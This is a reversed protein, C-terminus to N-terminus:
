LDCLTLTRAEWDKDLSYLAAVGTNVARAVRGRADKILVRLDTLLDSNKPVLPHEMSVMRNLVVFLQMINRICSPFKLKQNVRERRFLM